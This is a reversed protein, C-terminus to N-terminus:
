ISKILFQELGTLNLHYKVHSLQKELHSAKISPFREQSCDYWLASALEFRFNDYDELNTLTLGKQNLAKLLISTDALRSTVLIKIDEVLQKLSISMSTNHTVSVVILELLKGLEPQLQFESSISVSIMAADKTKVELTKNAMTFDQGTDYPGTWSSLISNFESPQAETLLHKLVWLEGWLGMIMEQTLRLHISKNFFESWKAYTATTQNAAQAPNDLQYVSNYISLILDNFLDNFRSDLLTIVLHQSEDYYQLALNEKLDSNTTYSIDAPLRMILCRELNSNYALSLDPKCESSIRLARFDTISKKDIKSWQQELVFTNM